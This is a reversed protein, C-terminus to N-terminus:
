SDDGCRPGRMLTSQLGPFFSQGAATAAAVQQCVIAVAMILVFTIGAAYYSWPYFHFALYSLFIIFLLLATFAFLQVLTGATLAFLERPLWSAAPPATAASRTSNHDM